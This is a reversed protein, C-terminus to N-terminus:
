HSTAPSRNIVCDPIASALIALGEATVDTDELRLETLSKMRALYTLGEDTIATRNLYLSQLSEPLAALGADEVKSGSLDLFTLTSVASLIAIAADNTTTDVLWLYALEPCSAIHKVDNIDIFTGTLNLSHLSRLSTISPILDPPLKRGTMDISQIIAADNRILKSRHDLIQQQGHFQVKGGFELCRDAVRHDRSPFDILCNPLQERLRAVGEDSVQTGTLLLKTLQQLRTLERVGEDSVPTYQLALLKLRPLNAIVALSRDTARTGNLGLGELRKCTALQVIGDDSLRTDNPHFERLAQLQSVFELGADSIPTNTAHLQEISQLQGIWRLGEDNLSTMNMDLYKLKQLHGLHRFGSGTLRRCKVFALWELQQMTALHSLGDDTIDTMALHLSQLKTLNRLHALGADTIRTSFLTLDRLQHLQGIYILADDTLPTGSLYLIELKPFDVLGALDENRLLPTNSVEIQFVRSLDEPLGSTRDFTKTAGTAADRSMVQGGLELFCELTQRPDHTQTAPAPSAVPADEPEEIRTVQGTDSDIEITVDGRETTIVVVIIAFAITAGVAWIRWSRSPKGATSAHTNSARTADDLTRQALLPLDAGRCFPDLQEAVQEASAPRRAPDLDTMSAILRSLKRPVDPRFQGIEPVEERRRIVRLRDARYQRYDFPLRGEILRWLTLGLSYIDTRADLVGGKECQEPAVYELTGVFETAGTLRVAETSQEPDHASQEPVAVIALGFDAVLVCGQRSLLLNSPKVDRHILQRESSERFRHAHALGLAAQRVIECADAISICGCAQAVREVDAGDIWDMIVYPEGNVLGADRVAVIHDSRLRAQAQIEHLFRATQKSDSQGGHRLVKVAVRIKLLDHDAQYVLGMGGRGLFKMNSCGPIVPPKADADTKEPRLKLRIQDIFRQTSDQAESHSSSQSLIVSQVASLVPDTERSIGEITDTCERCSALHAELDPWADDSGVGNLFKALRESQSCKVMIIHKLVAFRMEPILYGQGRLPSM